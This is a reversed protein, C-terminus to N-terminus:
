RLLPLSGRPASFHPPFPPGSPLPPLRLLPPSPSRTRTPRPPSPSSSSRVAPKRRVQLGFKRRGARRTAPGASRSEGPPARRRHDIM